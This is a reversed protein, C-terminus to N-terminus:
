MIEQMLTILTQMQSDYPKGQRDYYYQAKTFYEKVRVYNQKEEEKQREILYGVYALYMYVEYANEYEKSMKQFGEYSKEYRGEMEWIISQNLLDQYSPTIRSILTAYCEEAMSLYQEKKEEESDGALQLYTYGLKRLIRNDDSYDYAAKLMQTQNERDQYEGYADALLIAANARSDDDVKANLVAGAALIVEEWDEEEAALNARILNIQVNDMGREGACELLYKAETEDGAKVAAIAGDRYYIMNDPNEELAYTFYKSAAEYNELNYYSNGILYFVEGKEDGQKWVSGYSRNNLLSTGRSIVTEDEMKASAQVIERYDQEFHEQRMRLNGYVSLLIGCALILAYCLYLATCQMQIQRYRIDSKGINQLSCKMATISQYRKRKEFKMARSVITILGSSYPLHYASLPIIEQKKQAPYRGTMLSYFTAGLSYIDMRVDLIIASADQGSQLLAAKEFQEPAAFWPSLGQLEESGDEELSINFDILCVNGEPTIMINAPKIDSHLIAPNQGHLYELVECLQRLWLIFQEESFQYGQKQYYQLDYGDIYEMVTYVEMGFQLFDYVQPLYSHHLRKLIDVETRTNITGVFNERIRKVVVYKQLRLHYALYIVGTGGSGIERIIQYTDNLVAGEYLM